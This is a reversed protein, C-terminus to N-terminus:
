GVPAEFEFGNILRYFADVCTALIAIRMATSAMRWGDM